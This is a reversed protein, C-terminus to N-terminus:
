FLSLQQPKSPPTPHSPDDQAHADAAVYSQYNDIIDRLRLFDNEMTEKLTPSRLVAAPHYLPYYIRENEIKPQGHIYSIKATEGFFMAM